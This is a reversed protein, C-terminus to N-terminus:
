TRIAWGARPKCVANLLAEAAVFCPLQRKGAAEFYEVSVAGEVRKAKIAGTDAPLLTPQLATQYAAVALEMQARQVEKPIVDHRVPLSDICVWSRPWQLPQDINSKYGSFLDRKAELYDMARLLLRECASDSDPISYGRSEAFGRLDAASVYSNALANTGAGSEIILSM